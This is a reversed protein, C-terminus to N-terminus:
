RRQPRDQVSHGNWGRSSRRLYAPFNCRPRAGPLPRRNDRDLLVAIPPIVRGGAERQISRSPGGSVEARFGGTTRGWPSRRVALWGCKRGSTAIKGLRATRPDKSDEVAWHFAYTNPLARHDLWDRLGIDLGRWPLHKSLRLSRRCLSVIRAEARYRLRTRRTVSHLVSHWQDVLQAHLDPTFLWEPTVILGARKHRAFSGRAIGAEELIRRAIPRDYKGGVRPEM